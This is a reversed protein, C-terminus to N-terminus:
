QPAAFEKPRAGYYGETYGADYGSYFITDYWNSPVYKKLPLQEMDKSILPSRGKVRVQKGEKTLRNYEDVKGVVHFYFDGLVEQYRSLARRLRQRTAEWEPADNATITKRGAWDKKTQDVIRRVEAAAEEVQQIHSVMEQAQMDAFFHQLPLRSSGVSLHLTDFEISSVDLINFVKTEQGVEVTVQGKEVKKIVGEVQTGDKLGLKDARM